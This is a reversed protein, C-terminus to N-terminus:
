TLAARLRALPPPAGGPFTRDIVWAAADLGEDRVNPNTELFTTLLSLSSDPPSDTGPSLIKRMADTDGPDNNKRAAWCQHVMTELRNMHTSFGRADLKSIIPHITGHNVAISRIDFTPAGLVALAATPFVAFEKNFFMRAAAFHFNAVSRSPGGPIRFTQVTRGSPLVWEYRHNVKTRVRTIPHASRYDPPVMQKYLIIVKKLFAADSVVDVHIDLDSLKYLEPLAGAVLAFQVLSGCLTFVPDWDTIILRLEPVAQILRELAEPTPNITRCNTAARCDTASKAIASTVQHARDGHMLYPSDTGINRHGADRIETLAAARLDEITL